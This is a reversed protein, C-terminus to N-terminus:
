SPPSFHKALALAPGQNYADTFTPLDLTTLGTYILSLDCTNKEKM